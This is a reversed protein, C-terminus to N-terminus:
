SISEGDARHLYQCEVIGNCVIALHHTSHQGLFSHTNAGLKATTFNEAFHWLIDDAAMVAALYGTAYKKQTTNMNALIGLAEGAEMEQAVSVCALIMEKNLGFEAMGLTIAAKEEAAFKGDVSAMSFAM